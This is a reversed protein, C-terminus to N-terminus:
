LRSYSHFIVPVTVNLASLSVLYSSSSVIITVGFVEGVLAVLVIDSANVTVIYMIHNGPHNIGM